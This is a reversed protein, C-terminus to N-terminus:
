QVYIPNYTVVFPTFHVCHDKDMCQLEVQNLIPAMDIYSPIIEVGNHIYLKIHYVSYNTCPLTIVTVPHSHRRLNM